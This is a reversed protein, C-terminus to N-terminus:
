LALFLTHSVFIGIFYQKILFEIEIFCEREGTGIM